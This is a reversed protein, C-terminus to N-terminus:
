QFHLYKVRKCFGSLVTLTSYTVTHGLFGRASYMTLLFTSETGGFVFIDLIVNLFYFFNSVVLIKMFLLIFLDMM